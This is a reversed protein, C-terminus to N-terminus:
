WISCLLLTVPANIQPEVPSPTENVSSSFFNTIFAQAVATPSLGFKVTIGNKPPVQM